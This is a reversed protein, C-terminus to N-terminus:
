PAQFRSVFRERAAPLSRGTTSVIGSEFCERTEKLAKALEQATADASSPVGRSPNMARPAGYGLERLLLTEWHVYDQRWGSSEAMRRLLMATGQYLKPHPERDPLYVSLLAVASALAALADGDGRLKAWVSQRPEVRYHGLHERLRANWSLSAMNGPQLFSAMRRGQGGRVYGAHRGRSQTLADVVVSTEGHPRVSLLIGEDQWNM